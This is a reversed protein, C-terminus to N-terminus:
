PAYYMTNFQLTKINSKEVGTYLPSTFYITFSASDMYLFVKKLNLFKKKKFSLSYLM